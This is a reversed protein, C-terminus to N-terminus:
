RVVTEALGTIVAAANANGSHAHMETFMIKTAEDPNAKVTDLTQSLSAAKAIL